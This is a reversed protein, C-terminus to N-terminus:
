RAHYAGAVADAVTRAWTDLHVFDVSEPHRHAAFIMAELDLVAERAEPTPHKLDALLVVRRASHMGDALDTADLNLGWHWDPSAQRIAEGLSSALDALLSYVIFPGTRAADPWPEHRPLRKFAPLRSGHARAWAHLAQAYDTAHLRKPDPGEHTLLWARLHRQRLELTADFYALNEEAQHESLTGACGPHPLEYPPYDRLDWPTSGPAGRLWSPILKLM